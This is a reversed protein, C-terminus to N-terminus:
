IEVEHSTSFFKAAATAIDSLAEIDRATLDGTGRVSLPGNATQVVQCRDDESMGAGGPARSRNAAEMLVGAVVSRGRGGHAM